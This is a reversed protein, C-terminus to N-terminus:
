KESKELTVRRREVRGVESPAGSRPSSWEINTSRGIAAELLGRKRMAGWMDVSPQEAADVMVRLARAGIRVQVDLVSQMHTRDLGDAVRLIGALLRVLQRDPEALMAFARHKLKPESARHYRAVNAIIQIQRTTLGPLDAHVILHYSHKHHQAYNILYGVDHLLSAAELLLRSEPEFSMGRKLRLSQRQEALQDFIRLALRTVQKSHEAEYNCAKAFRRVGKMPDQVPDDASTPDDQSRAMQLLIGDRIGGEHVKLRNAGFHKVVEDVIVLGAVIIDARDAGLGSVQARRALPLKRLFDIFHKIDARGVEVGQVKSFLEHHAGGAGRLVTMAGLTTLTGGTGIIQQPYIPPRGIRERLERRVFERLKDFKADVSKEPGGFRETLRVAGLPMSYVHEIVGSGGGASGAASLVMDTSGGGVDLVLTSQSAVDFARAASRYALMAEEDGSIIELDVGARNKLALVLDRANSAERAAATAVIRVQSVGYGRAISLMRDVAEVTHAIASGDMRGTAHLGRGLRTVEKEDDLVRYGGHEGTEAIILRLSNSGIDIAALRRRHGKSAGATPKGSRRHTGNLAAPKPETITSAAARDPSGASPLARQPSADLEISKLLADLAGQSWRALVDAHASELRAAETRTLRTIESRVDSDADRLKRANKSPRKPRGSELTRLFDVLTCADNIAGLHAQLEALLPYHRTRLDSSFCSGFIELVYRLGKIELRLDHLRELDTLDKGAAKRVGRVHVGVAARAVDTLSAPATGNKISRVLKEGATRVADISSTQILDRLRAGSRARARTLTNLILKTADKSPADPRRGIETFVERLVDLDRAQGAAKRVKGLKKTLISARRAPIVDEFAVLAADARRTAVRLAHVSRVAKADSDKARPIRRAAKLVDRIRESLVDRAVKDVRAGSPFEAMFKAAISGRKKAM